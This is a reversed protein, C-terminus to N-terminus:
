RPRPVPGLVSPGVARLGMPRTARGFVVSLVVMAAGVVFYAPQLWAFQALIVVEGVIWGMMVLGAAFSLGVAAERNVLVGIFAAGASGGVVVFLIAGAVFYDSILWSLSSSSLWEAPFQIWGAMVAVGGALASVAAIANVVLLSVRLETWRM